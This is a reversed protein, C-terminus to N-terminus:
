PKAESESSPLKEGPNRPRFVTVLKVFAPDILPRGQIRQRLPDDPHDTVEIVRGVVMGQIPEAPRAWTMDRLRALDGPRIVITRDVDDARLLRGDSRLQLVRESAKGDSETTVPPTVVVDLLIAPATLPQVASGAPGVQILRGVLHPGDIVPMGERLGDRAGRNIRLVSSGGDSSYAIVRARLPLVAGATVQELRQLEANDRRLREVEERLSFIEGEKILLQRAMADPDGLDIKDHRGRMWSAFTVLPDSIPALVATLVAHMPPGYFAWRGPMLSLVLLVVVVAQWIRRTTEASSPM